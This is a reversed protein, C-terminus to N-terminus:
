AIIRGKEDREHTQIHRYRDEAAEWAAERSDSRWRCQVMGGIGLILIPCDAVHGMPTGPEAQM